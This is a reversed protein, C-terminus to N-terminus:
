LNCASRGFRRTGGDPRHVHLANDCETDMTVRFRDSVLALSLVNAIGEEYFWVKGFGPLDGITNTQAIGSNCYIHMMQGHPAKRINKLLSRNVILNCSSESDLLIWNPNVGGDKHYESHQAFLREVAPSYRFIQGAGPQDDAGKTVANDTTMVGRQFFCHAESDGFDEENSEVARLLLQHSTLHVEEEHDDADISHRGDM